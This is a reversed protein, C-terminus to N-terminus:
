NRPDRILQDGARGSNQLNPRQKRLSVERQVAENHAGHQPLGILITTGNVVTLNQFHGYARGGDIKGYAEALEHFALSSLFVSRGQSDKFHATNPNITVQDAVGKSPLDTATKGKGYRYDARNDLNSVPDNNLKVPGGATNATDSLAFGYTEASTVLQNVLTAGENASLDLGSTEFSVTNTKEDISIRDCNTSGVIECLAAKDAVLDGSLQLIEGTPDILRMPNNQVYAYRNLQQPDLKRQPTIIVPDVSMFRGLASAYHRAQFYDLGSEADREKGTFFTPTPTCTGSVTQGDGFPLSTITECRAGNADTRARETGLWDAYNFYTANSTWTALHRGGAYIEARLTAGSADAETIMRGAADYYYQKVVAGNQLRAVRRGDSDYLYSM